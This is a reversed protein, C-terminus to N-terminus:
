AETEGTAIVREILDVLRVRVRDERYNTLVYDRGAAGLRDREAPDFACLRDMAVVMEDPSDYYLGGGSREIHERM